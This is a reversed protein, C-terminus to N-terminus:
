VSRVEWESQTLFNLSESDPDFVLVIEQRDIKKRLNIIKQQLSVEVIGYDTGERLIYSELVAFLTQENLSEPAIMIPPTSDKKETKM